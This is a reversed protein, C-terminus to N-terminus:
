SVINHPSVVSHQEICILSECSTSASQEAHELFFRRVHDDTALSFKRAFFKGSSRIRKIYQEDLTDPGTGCADWFLAHNSPYVRLPLGALQANLVLTHIYSEDPILCEQYHQTFSVCDNRARILWLVTRRNACFWQGGIAIQKLNNEALMKQMSKAAARLIFKGLLKKFHMKKSIQIHPLLINVSAIVKTNKDSGCIYSSLRQLFRQQPKSNYIYRWGHSFLGDDDDHLSILDIMADPRENSLFSEFEQIPRVPLCAESLLQFHTVDPDKMAMKMLCYSAEILSWDGWATVVPHQLIHINTAYPTFDPQKSFDHHVYVPHPFVAAAIEDIAVSSQKSSLVGFVIKLPTAPQEEDLEPLHSVYQGTLTSVFRRVMNGCFFFGLAAYILTSLATAWYWVVGQRKLEEGILLAIICVVFVRCTSFWDHRFHFGAIKMRKQVMINAVILGIANAVPFAMAGLSPVLVMALLVSAALLINSLILFHYCEVMQVMLEIQQRQTELLLVFFLMALIPLSAAGYKGASMISLAEEGGMVLTMFIGVIFLINIQLVQECMRASSSFDRHECYRAVIIPRILGALLQAPMYRKMYEYLSQAFGYAAMTGVDLMRGGVLRNTPGGYPTIVLHQVYGALAFKAITKLHSRLWNGDDATHQKDKDKDKDKSHIMVIVGILIVLLSLADGIAEVWIVDILRVDGQQLLYLMGILRALTGVTFSFQAFDQHLTSELCQSLFHTTARLVIVLLFVKFTSIVSGLGVLPALEGAFQYAVFTALLLVISRLGLSGYILNRLSVQYHKSYLEPVYRMLVHALGLGSITSLIEVLAVLVSYAAFSEVSLGRIVLLMASVGAVASVGKGLVFYILSQQIRKKGYRTSM